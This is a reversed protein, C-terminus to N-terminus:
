KGNADAASVCKYGLLYETFQTQARQLRQQQEMSMDKLSALTHVHKGDDCPTTGGASSVYPVLDAHVCVQGSPAFHEQYICHDGHVALHVRVCLGGDVGTLDVLSTPGQTSVIRVLEKYVPATPCVSQMVTPPSTVVKGDQHVLRHVMLTYVCPDTNHQTVAATTATTTTTTTDNSDDDDRHSQRHRHHHHDHLRVEGADYEEQM